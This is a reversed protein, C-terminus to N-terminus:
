DRLGRQWADLEERSGPVDSSQLWRKEWEALAADAGAACVELSGANKSVADFFAREWFERRYTNMSGGTYVTNKGAQRVCALDM